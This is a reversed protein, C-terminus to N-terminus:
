APTEPPTDPTEEGEDGEDGDDRTWGEARLQKGQAIWEAQTVERTEGTAAKTLPHLKSLGQGGAAPKTPKSEDM